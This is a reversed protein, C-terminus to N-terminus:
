AENTSISGALTGFGEIKPQPHGKPWRAQLLRNKALKTITVANSQNGGLVHFTDRDQGAMFGVHGQWGDRSGRWFTLVAGVQPTCAEGFNGWQRAGLMNAPVSLGPQWQKLCTGVFAGCWAVEGPDIVLGAARRFLNMLQTKHTREHLGLIARANDMWPMDGVAQLPAKMLAEHTLPGYFPRAVFLISKKFAIIADDTLGGRIGDIEGTYFGLRKLRRQVERWGERNLKMEVEAM